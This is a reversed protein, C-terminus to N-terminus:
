EHKIQLVFGFLFFIDLTIVIVQTAEDKLRTCAVRYAARDTPGDTWRDTPGDTPGQEGLVHSITITRTQVNSDKM